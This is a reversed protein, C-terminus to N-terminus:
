KILVMKKVNNFKGAQIKYFYVGSAVNKGKSNKGDWVVSKYGALQYENVLVKVRQGLINYISIRVQCDESLSYQIVTQPNFPNPYNQALSFTTPLTEIFKNPRIEIRLEEALADVIIAQDIRVASLDVKPAKKRLKIRVIPEKGPSLTSLNYIDLLGIKIKGSKTHYFLNMGQSRLSTRIEEVEMQETDLSLDFELGAVEEKTDIELLIEMNSSNEKRCFTLGVIVEGQDKHRALPGPIICNCPNDGAKLLYNALYVMDGVNVDGDYNADGAELPEHGEAGKFKYNALSIVDGLNMTRDGNYDGVLYSLPRSCVIESKSSENSRHDMASIQYYYTVDNVLGLDQYISDPLNSAVLTLETVTTGRYLNYGSLDGEVNNNWVLESLQNGYSASAGAPMSPPTTDASTETTFISDSGHYVNAFVDASKIRFHYITSPVLNTLTVVHYTENDPNAEFDTYDVSTGYEAFSSSLEDTEWRIKATNESIYIVEPGSILAPPTVDASTLATIIFYDSYTPGNGFPDTSFVRVNYSSALGLSLAHDRDSYAEGVIREALAGILEYGMYTNSPEDTEWTIIALSEDLYSVEPGATIIPPETDAVDPKTVFAVDSSYTPGNKAIDESGVRFHYVTNPNLNSLFATHNVTAEIYVIETGYSQDEGYEVISNGTEDTVWEVIAQNHTKYVVYPGSIIVPPTADPYPKTRFNDEGTDRPKRPGAGYESEATNGSPDTSSVYFNYVTDPVLNTLVVCHDNVYTGSGTVNDYSGGLGYYVWSDSIEDTTWDIQAQTNNIWSAYPGALIIPAASDPEPLTVFWLDESWTPGNSEPDGSGVRYHYMTSDLLNTLVIQHEQDLELDESESGYLESTGYQVISTSIEDTTWSIVAKNDTIGSHIPGHVIMPPVSDPGEETTFSDTGVFTGYGNNFLVSINDNYNNAVALDLDDDGDLDACYVSAPGSWSGYDVKTQFTGNGNNKLISIDNDLINAVALDLDFDGDLDACIISHPANGAAYDVKPQFSADGNNKLISVSDNGQNAVALDLDQDGDLDACFVSWPGVGADYSSPFEFTGDGYNKRIRVNDNNWATVALDLDEDGDL